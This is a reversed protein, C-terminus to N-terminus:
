TRLKKDVAAIVTKLVKLRAYRKCDAEVVTWPAVGTSTRLLMEDVAQKYRDWKERNRWDEGTIKWKKYPTGERAKFRRLQEESSIHLWIKVLVAGFNALHAEFENIESYARRWEDPACFGEVREVLVRGYWSRDLIAIHGAKPFANWFRWLYHHAKETDNPAAIPIVEYGRPDMSRVLRKIAGGKGAADWGEFAAIVPIRRRYIEHEIEWLRDQYRDLREEYEKRDVTKALDVRDLVSEVPATEEEKAAGPKPTRRAANPVADLRTGLSQIVTRFMKVTAYREDHAEIVTWPAWTTGTRALMEDAATFYQRYQAHHRWDDKTVKWETARNKELKRFRKKQEAKSIHLFLKIIVAGDDALQREFANIEEYARQWVPKRILKDVREVQVRGYWSRDFVAIRGRAPTRIWFRWLFPRLREEENPPNTPYVNFGRPDLALILKNILTGKGAADWGEFVLILPVKLERARRQLEGLRLELDGIQAKYDAKALERTLDVKDLM